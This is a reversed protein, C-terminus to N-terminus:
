LNTKFEMGGWELLCNKSRNIPKLSMPKLELTEEVPENTEKFVIYIRNQTYDPSIDLSAIDNIKENQIWLIQIYKIQQMRPGWYTIFDSKEKPNFGLYDLRASLYQITQEGRFQEAHHWNLKLNETPLQADWFLYPYDSGNIRITGDPASTGKWENEYVPYTFQIAAATTLKLSFERKPESYLYIVPKEVMIQPRDSVINEEFNM